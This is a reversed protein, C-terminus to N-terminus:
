GMLFSHKRAIVDRRARRRLRGRSDNMARRLAPDAATADVYLVRDIVEASTMADFDRPDINRM